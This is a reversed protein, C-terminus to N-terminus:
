LCIGITHYMGICVRLGSRADAAAAENGFQPAIVGGNPLYFNVYSGALRDGAQLRRSM